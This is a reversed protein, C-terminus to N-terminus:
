KREPGEFRMLDIGDGQYPFTSVQSNYPDTVAYVETYTAGSYLRTLEEPLVTRARGTEWFVVLWARERGAVTASIAKRIGGNKGERFAKATLDARESYHDFPLSGGYLLVLDQPQDHEDVYAAVERWPQKTVAGFYGIVSVISLAAVLVALLAQAYRRGGVAFGKFGAVGQTVLLYFAPSAAITYRDVLRPRYLHSAIFPVVIPVPLRALLLNATSRDGRIIRFLVWGALLALVIVLPLSSASYARPMRAVDALSPEPM